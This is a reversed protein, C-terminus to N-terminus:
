LDMAIDRREARAGAEAGVKRVALCVVREGVMVAAMSAVWKM